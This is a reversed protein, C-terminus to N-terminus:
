IVLCKLFVNIISRTEAKRLIHSVGLVAMPQPPLPSPLQSCMRLFPSLFSTPLTVVTQPIAPAERPGYLLAALETYQEAMLM